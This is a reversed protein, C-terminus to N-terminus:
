PARGAAFQRAAVSLWGIWDRGLCALTGPLTASSNLSRASVVVTAGASALRQAIARRVSCHTM